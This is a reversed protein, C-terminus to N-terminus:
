VLGSRAATRPAQRQEGQGKGQSSRRHGTGEETVGCGREALPRHPPSVRHSLFPHSLSPRVRKLLGTCWTCLTFSLPPSVPGSLVLPALSPAPFVARLSHTCLTMLRSPSNRVSGPVACAAPLLLLSLVLACFCHPSCLRAVSRQM